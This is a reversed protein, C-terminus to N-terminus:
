IEGHGRKMEGHAGKEDGWAGGKGRGMRRIRARGSRFRLTDATLIRVASVENRFTHQRLGGGEV